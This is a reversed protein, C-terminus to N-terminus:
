QILFANELKPFAVISEGCLNVGLFDNESLFDLIKSKRKLVVSRNGTEPDSFHQFDIVRM